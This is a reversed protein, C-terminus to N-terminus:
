EVPLPPPASPRLRVHRAGLMFTSGGIVCLTAALLVAGVEFPPLPTFLKLAQELAITIIPQYVLMMFFTETGATRSAYLYFYTAPAYILAGLAAAAALTVPDLFGAANPLAALVPYRDLAAADILGKALSGALVTALFVLANVLMIAGTIRCRKRVTDAANSTPHQESIVTAAVRALSALGILLVAYLAKGPAMQAVTLACGALIAAAGAVDTPRMRRGFAVWAMLLGYVVDVRLLLVLETATAFFCAGIALTVSAVDLLGYAWTHPDRFTSLGFEGRGAVALLVLGAAATAVCSFVLPEITWVSAAYRVYVAYSAWFLVTIGCLVLGKRM